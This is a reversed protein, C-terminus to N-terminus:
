ARTRCVACSRNARPTKLSSISRPTDAFSNSSLDGFLGRGCDTACQCGAMQRFVLYLCQRSQEVCRTERARYVEFIHVIRLCEAVASLDHPGEPRWGNRACSRKLGVVMRYQISQSNVWSPSSLPLCDRVRETICTDSSLASTEYRLFAEIGGIGVGNTNHDSVVLVRATL